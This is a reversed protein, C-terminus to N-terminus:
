KGIAELLEKADQQTIVGKELLDLVKLRSKETGSSASENDAFMDSNLGDRAVVKTVQEKAQRAEERAERAEERAERAQERVDKRTASANERMHQAAELMEEREMKARHAEEKFSDRVTGFTDKITVDADKVAVQVNKRITEGLNAFAGSFAQKFAPSSFVKTAKTVEEMAKEIENAIKSSKFSKKGEENMDTNDHLLVINGIESSVQMTVIRENNDEIGKKRFIVGESLSKTEVDKLFSSIKGLETTATIILGSEEPIIIKVKGIETSIKSHNQKSPLLTYEINGTESMLNTESVDAEELIIQGVETSCNVTHAKIKTMRISGVETECNLKEFDSDFINVSGIETEINFTGSCDELLVAGIETEINVLGDLSSVKVRGLETELNSKSGNPIKVDIFASAFNINQETLAEEALTFDFSVENTEKNLSKIGTLDLEDLDDREGDIAVKLSVDVNEGDSKTMVIGLREATINVTPEKIELEFKIELNSM